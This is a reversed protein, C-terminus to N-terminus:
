IIFPYCFYHPYLGKSFLLKRKCYLYLWCDNYFNLENALNRKYDGLIKGQVSQYTSPLTARATTTQATTNELSM